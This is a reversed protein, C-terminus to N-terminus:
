RLYIVSNILPHTEHEHRPAPVIRIDTPTSEPTVVGVFRYRDIVLPLSNSTLINPGDSLGFHLHPANSNGSSGLRGLRQGTRVQEGVGVEISGPQLHAYTAFVGPRIRVVVQNGAFDLPQKVHVPPQNPTEEPLGDRVFVVEGDAVSKVEAGYAFYQENRTGDGSFLRNGQVRVWDIAFTEPKTYRSGGAILRLVRHPEMDCCGNANWWGDGSLPPAIVVPGRRDVVLELGEISLSGILAQRLEPTDPDLQYAIRHTLKRPMEGHPVVLDIVTVLAGSAPVQNTPAGDDKLKRTMAKLAEGELALLQRGRGNFVQVSTLTVPHDTVNTFILDYEIHTHGDSGQAYLPVGIASVILATTQEQPQPQRNHTRLVASPAAVVQTVLPSFSPPPFAEVDESSVALLSSAAISLGFAFAVVSRPSM